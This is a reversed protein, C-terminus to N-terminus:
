LGPLSEPFPIVLGASLFAIALLLTAVESVENIAGYTDGTLGGTLRTIMSGLSWALLSILIFLLVGGTGALLFSSLLALIAALLTGTRSSGTHFAAGLGASRAYPFARVVLVMTWRSLAPFLVLLALRAASPLSLLAAWKLLILCVGGTLGYAGIHRDRMIELRREATDGGFLGDCTDLFGELHLAGTLIVLLAVLLASTLAPSWLRSFVIDVGALIGGLLLGVLPFFGQAAGLEEPSPKGKGLPLITLFKIAALFAM